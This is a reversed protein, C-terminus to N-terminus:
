DVRRKFFWLENFTYNVTFRFYNENIMTALEPKVKVYEFTVNLFSRNDILPFGFGLSAGYENYSNGEYNNASSRNVRLYSNSYHFGGRYRIRGFYNRMNYKPIYEGGVAVRIRNKFDGQEDEFYCDEWTEYLFDAALTMKNDKTYSVGFGYSNPIDFRYNTITDSTSYLSTSGVEQIDYMKTTLKRKPSFVFGVTARSTKSLPHTYQIGVEYKMGHMKYYDERDVDDSTDSDFAVDRERTIDGFLYGINVGIALRNRWIDISLGGYVESLSGSGEFVEAWTLDDETETGGFQYGVHSYPLLGVSMALWRTIPFQLAMYEVNGNFKRQDDSGDNFWSVQASTGFDFMFTLSDMCSYSAPNMPNIQKASRLGFGVGGMARGAGFSRDALEGYGFLTYPSNTNNQALLSVQTLFLLSIVVVKNIRLM